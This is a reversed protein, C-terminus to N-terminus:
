DRDSGKISLKSQPIQIQLHIADDNGLLGNSRLQVKVPEAANELNRNGNHALFCQAGLPM